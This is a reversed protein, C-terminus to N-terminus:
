SLFFLALECIRPSHSSFSLFCAAPTPRCTHAFVLVRKFEWSVKWKLCEANQCRDGQVQKKWFCLLECVSTFVPLDQIFPMFSVAESILILRVFWNEFRVVWEDQTSEPMNDSFMRQQQRHNSSPQSPLTWCKNWIKRMADKDIQRTSTGAAAESSMLGLCVLTAHIVEVLATSAIMSAEMCTPGLKCRLLSHIESTTYM